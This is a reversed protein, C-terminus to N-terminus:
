KKKSLTEAAQTRVSLDADNEATRRLGSQVLPDDLYADIDQAVKKRVKVSADQTLARLMSDKVAPDDAGHLNLYVDLRSDESESHEAIDLMAVIVDHSRADQGDATKRFRLGSLAALRDKESARRDTAIRQADSVEIPKAETLKRAALERESTLLNVQGQLAAIEQELAALRRAIEPSPDTSRDPVPRTEVGATAQGDAELRAVDAQLKQVDGSLRTMETASPGPVTDPIAHTGASRWLVAGSLTCALVSLFVALLAMSSKNM